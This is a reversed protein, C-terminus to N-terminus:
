AGVPVEEVAADASAARAIPTSPYAAVVLVTIASLGSVLYGFIWHIPIIPLAVALVVALTKLMSRRAEREGRAMGVAARLARIGLVVLVAGMLELGYVRFDYKFVGDKFSKAGIVTYYAIEICHMALMTTIAIGYFAAWTSVAYRRGRVGMRWFAVIAAATAVGITILVTKDDPGM